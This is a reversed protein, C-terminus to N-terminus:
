GLSSAVCSATKLYGLQFTFCYFVLESFMIVLTRAPIVGVSLILSLDEIFEKM